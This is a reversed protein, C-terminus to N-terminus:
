GSTNVAGLRKSGIMVAQDGREVPSKPDPNLLVQGGRKLGVPLYSNSSAWQQLEGFTWERMGDIAAVYFQQGVRVSTLEAFVAQVGPDLLEQILLSSSFRSACVISDCGTRRLIEISEADVCEVVTHVGANLGEITMAVALSLDDSRPNSPERALVIAHTAGQINAQDLTTQRAPNGRVFKVGLSNLEPPIEELVDDIVVVTKKATADDAGLEGVLDIVRTLDSFHIILIHGTDRIANMGRVGKSKNEILFAAV